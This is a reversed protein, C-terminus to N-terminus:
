NARCWLEVNISIIARSYEEWEIADEPDTVTIFRRLADAMTEAEISEKVTDSVLKGERRYTVLYLNV